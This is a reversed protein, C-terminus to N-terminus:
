IALNNYLRELREGFSFLKEITQGEVLEQAVFEGDYNTACAATLLRKAQEETDVSFVPM